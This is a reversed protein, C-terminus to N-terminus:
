SHRYTKETKKYNINLPKSENANIPEISKIETNRNTYDNFKFTGESPIKMRIVYPKGAALNAKIEDETHDLGRGDYKPRLGEAMQEERM